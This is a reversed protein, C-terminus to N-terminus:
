VQKIDEQGYMFIIIFVLGFFGFTCHDRGFIYAYVSWYVLTLFFICITIRVKEFFDKNAILAFVIAFLIVDTFTKFM